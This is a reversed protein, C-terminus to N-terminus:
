IIIATAAGGDVSVRRHEINGFINCHVHSQLSLFILVQERALELFVWAVFFLLFAFDLELRIPNVSSYEFINQLREARLPQSLGDVSM